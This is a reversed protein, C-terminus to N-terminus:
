SWCRCASSSPWCWPPDLCYARRDDGAVNLRCEELQAKGHELGPPIGPPHRNRGSCVRWFFDRLLTILIGLIVGLFILTDEFNAASLGM